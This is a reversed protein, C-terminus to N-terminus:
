AAYAFDAGARHPLPESGEGPGQRKQGAGTRCPGSHGAPLQSSLIKWHPCRTGSKGVTCLQTLNM